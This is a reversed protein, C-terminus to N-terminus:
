LAVQLGDTRMLAAIARARPASPELLDGDGLLASPLGADLPFLHLGSTGRPNCELARAGGQRSEIWDFSIQGTYRTGRVFAAIADRIGPRVIPEFYYSSSRRLRYAPHYIAHALLRGRDSIAYSC